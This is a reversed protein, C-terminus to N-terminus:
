SPFQHMPEVCKFKCLFESFSSFKQRLFASRDLHGLLFSKLKIYMLYQQLINPYVYLYKKNKNTQETNM